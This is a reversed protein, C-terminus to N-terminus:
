ILYNNPHQIFDGNRISQNDPNYNHINFSKIEVIDFNNIEANLYVTELVGEDLLLDDNDLGFIYKGKAKLAGICRSYLTGMNRKNNIIIIRQDFTQYKKIIKSSNDFSLDNILIIEIDKFTQLFISNLSLEITNQCNYIPIIVSIKPHKNIFNIEKSQNNLFFTKTKNM